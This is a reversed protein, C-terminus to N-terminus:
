DIITETNISDYDNYDYNPEDEANAYYDEAYRYINDPEDRERYQYRRAVITFAIIGILLIVISLLYYIFGCICFEDHSGCWVTVPTLVAIVGILQFVGKIAFFTGILLGKMSHPSQACIFEFTAVNFLMFGIANLSDQAILLHIIDIKLLGVVPCSLNDKDTEYATTCDRSFSGMLLTCLGSLFFMVMGLGM